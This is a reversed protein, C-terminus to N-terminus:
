GVPPFYLTLLKIGVVGYKMRVKAMLITRVPVTLPLGCGDTEEAPIYAVFREFDILFWGSYNFQVPPFM